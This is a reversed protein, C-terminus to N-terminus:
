ALLDPRRRETRKQAQAALWKSIKAHDGSLLVDPVCHGRFARPRTYQPGELGGSVGFSEERAGDEAGLAGPLLRVIADIMVLAPIEGGTLVVDGISVERADLLQIAREDVGEYHGAIIILHQDLALNAAMPQNFRQGQASTILVTAPKDHDAQAWEGAPVIVDGRLLMGIGGGFPYDDTRHHLGVGFRRLPVMRIDVLQNERARMIISTGLPGEFMEPFLTVVQIVM